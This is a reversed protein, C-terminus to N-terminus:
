TVVCWAYSFARMQPHDQRLNSPLRTQWFKQLRENRFFIKMNKGSIECGHEKQKSFKGLKSIGARAIHSHANWRIYVTSYVLEINNTKLFNDPCYNM